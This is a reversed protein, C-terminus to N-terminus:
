NPLTCFEYHNLNLEQKFTKLRNTYVEKINFNLFFRKKDYSHELNEYIEHLESETNKIKEKVYQLSGTTTAEVLAEYNKINNEM